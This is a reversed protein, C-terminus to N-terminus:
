ASGEIRSKGENVRVVDELTVRRQGTVCEYILSNRYAILTTIQRSLTEEVNRFEKLRSELYQCIENQEAIPPVPIVMYNYKAASINQITAQTFILNKWADYALAKTFLYLFLPNMKWPQTRARILYGAFCADGVYNRFIFTKGVTAGSRAFLIDDSQLMAEKAVEWPLSRFTDDRLSGDDDFDTIRLYRPLDHDELEAAENLGYTLPERLIRKLCQATWHQPIEGIWDQGSPKTRINPEIGLTVAKTITVRQLINLTELQRRKAAVAADIAACSADLFAAIREQETLPPLPIIASRFTYQPLGFRTVGVARAEYQSRFQKSAHLWFLFPGNVRKSRPRIMALHYGCLVGPLEEGVLASIAIDDPTESDKTVLLDGQRIQFKEVERLDASAEMFDIAGTITDNKYVDTYNCLRVSTEDDFTHKDVNSFFVDAVSDIRSKKWEDPLKEVWPTLYGKPTDDSM